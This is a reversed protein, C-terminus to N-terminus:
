VHGGEANPPADSPDADISSSGEIKEAAWKWKEELVAVRTELKEVEEEAEDAREEAEAREERLDEMLEQSIDHQLQRRDVWVKKDQSTFRLVAVALLIVGGGVAGLLTDVISQM